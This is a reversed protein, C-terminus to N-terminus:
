PNLAFMRVVGCPPYRSSMRLREPALERTPIWRRRSVDFPPRGRVAIKDVDEPEVATGISGTQKEQVTEFTCDARVIDAAKKMHSPLAVPTRVHQNKAPAAIFRVACRSEIMRTFRCVEVECNAADKRLIRVRWQDQTSDREASVDQEFPQALM